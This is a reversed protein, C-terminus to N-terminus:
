FLPRMPLSLTLLGSEVGPNSDHFGLNSIHNLKVGLRAGGDFKYFLGISTHFEFTGGLDKASGEEFAGVGLEQRLVVRDGFIVDWYLGGYGFVAGKGTLMFGAMPGFGSFWSGIGLVTHHSAYEIRGEATTEDFDTVDSVGVSFSLLDHPDHPDGARAVPALAMLLCVTVGIRLLRAVAGGSRTRRPPVIAGTM